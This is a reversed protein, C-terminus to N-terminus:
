EFPCDPLRSGTDLGHEFAYLRLLWAGMGAAGQMYGTQAKVNEPQTRNEAHVWKLGNGEAEGSAVLHKSLRRAFELYEEQESVRYLDLFAEAVGADGCCIGYNNWFGPQMQEPIGSQIVAQAAQHMAQSWAPDGTLKSLQYYLRLTGVPGHCWGLYFLDDGGPMHHCILGEQTTMSRLYLGGQLAAQLFREDHTVEYLRSLFYAIGATGHSFNPMLRPFGPIADWSVGMPEKRQLVLLRLGVQRALEIADKGGLESGVFLLYLGIGASGSIIDYVLGWEVGGEAPHVGEALLDLSRLAAQKYKAQQSLKYTKLLAYGVGSVGTYLGADGNEIGLKDPLRAVLDDCARCATELYSSQGTICYAQLFYLVVGASGSYLHTVIPEEGPFVPWTIGQATPICHRNLWNGARLGADLFSLDGGGTPEV